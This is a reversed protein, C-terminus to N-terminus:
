VTTGPLGALHEEDHDVVVRVLGAVDLRGFTAHIGARAWGADDLDALRAVTGARLEAFRDIALELTATEPGSAPGPETWTWAPSDEAALSDLRAQWVATEVSVLHAVVERASWEGPPPGGTAAEAAETRRAALGVRVPGSALREILSARDATM